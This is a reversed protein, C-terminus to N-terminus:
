EVLMEKLFLLEENREQTMKVLCMNILLPQISGGESHLSELDCKQEKFRIWSLQAQKLLERREPSLRARLDAYTANIQRDARELELASCQNMESQTEPDQCNPQAMAPGSTATLLLLLVVAILARKM